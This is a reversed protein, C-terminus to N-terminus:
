AAEKAVRDAHRNGRAVPTDIRQHGRCHIVAVKKPAWVAELLQLIESGYKVPQGAANILGKEKYLAGHAHLTIFAYKSDTYINTVLGAALELARILAVLEAKQASTGQPLARAEIVKDETVVAYSALRKSNEVYSSGDTFYIVDPDRWPVDKLDPRSSYVEDMTQICDHDPPGESAPLLTAPNFTAVTELHIRPNECLSAQYKVMRSNTFWHNGKYEMLTLVAHPVKVVLEQGLTLKDAEQVLLATAAIARMCAPWGKAVGDLQKSLYAVPRQWSGMMQTLVGLAVGQREHVYLSFPKEVDPLGLAPAQLLAKKIAIFSQQAIPGWEFPEKEGGKTAQYLPKAMLAFNPIWIRCFGAAGLFERVERRSKPQPIAAVAQKRSVDLRRSGQSICFGLYKVESQCLQAKSRSVKYGADLLLELLERTAEFCEEQTVAAILLDDVYQLLVRKSPESKFTKLDQGLATGFITPSNKFGQSLRTWTYQLKRGTVPNEWQFAFLLQSAPPVRICFFADKLDLTTFHTAGSPILGLLVYPNPVVPHLSITSKNVVRLDQVPRYDETGPKQVPLLPTNWPSQCPRIIGHSLLRNLHAQIGELAKRPIPYQRLHIPRASPLLDVHVPPINRALGPPNDEAWVGSVQFSDALPLDVQGQSQHLRWEEELPCCFSLIGKPSSIPPRFSVSTQGDSDFSIQARLKSLLDRGLLPIPCDPMYLFEHQSGVEFLPSIASHLSKSQAAKELAQTVRAQLTTKDEVLQKIYQVFTPDTEDDNPDQNIYDSSILLPMTHGFLIQYPTVHSNLRSTSRISALILPLKQAWDKGTSNVVKRLAEKITRNMREVQGSSQPHYPVHLKHKINLAQLLVTFIEGVFAPGRDSDIIQPTGFRSEVDTLKRSEYAVPCLKGQQNRQLLVAALATETTALKITFSKAPDPYILAPAQAAATKLRSLAREHEETWEWHSKKQLLQQVLQAKGLNVKFGTEQILALVRETRGQVEERDSGVILIDDVYSHVYKRDQVGLKELMQTVHLHCLTPSNHFGQPLRTFTYQKDQFTFAFRDQSEPHLQIAFFCNALDIVSFWKSEPTISSLIDLASAVIPAITQTGKNIKRYDVTLRWNIGDAKKVPWLASNFPSQTERIVGQKMLDSIVGQLAPIAERPYPYQKQPPVSEGKVKVSSKIKGCDTASTTWLDPFLEKWRSQEAEPMIGAIKQWKPKYYPDIQKQWEYHPCKWLIQNCLDVVMNNKHLFDSGVIVETSTDPCQVVTTHFTDDGIKFQVDGYQYGRKTDGKHSSRDSHLGPPANKPQPAPHRSPAQSAQEQYPALDPYLTPVAAAVPHVAYPQYRQVNKAKLCLDRASAPEGPAWSCLARAITPHMGQCIERLREDDVKVDLLDGPIQRRSDRGEVEGTMILLIIARRVYDEIGENKGQQVYTNLIKFTRMGFSVSAAIALNLLSFGRQRALQIAGEMQEAFEPKICLRIVKILEETDIRGEQELKWLAVCAQPFKDPDIKGIQRAIVEIDTQSLPQSSITQILGGPLQRAESVKLVASVPMATATNPPACPLGSIVSIFPTYTRYAEILRELFAGPSETAGQLIESVKALNIPRKIGKRMGELLDRCYGSLLDYHQGNNPDWAPAARPFLTRVWEEPDQIGEPVRARTIAEANQLIKRREETTFLTLLLQQCDTWTPNHTAMISAVLDVVAQPKETYSPYHTKWNLLDTTTFPV